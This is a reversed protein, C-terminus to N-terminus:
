VGPGPKRALPAYLPDRALLREGAEIRHNRDLERAKCRFALDPAREMRRCREMTEGAFPDDGDVLVYFRIIGVGQEPRHGVAALRLVIETDNGVLVWPVPRTARAVAALARRHEDIGRELAGIRRNRQPLALEHFMGPRDPLAQPQRRQGRL